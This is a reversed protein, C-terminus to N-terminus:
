KGAALKAGSASLGLQGFASELDAQAEDLKIEPTQTTGISGMGVITGSENLSSLYTIEAQAAEKIQAEFAAADLAGDVIPAKAVLSEALRTRTATHMEIGALTASALARAESLVMKEQIRALQANLQANSERLAQAEVENVHIEKTAAESVPAAVLQRGQTGRAAEFLQLVKGGAGPTTVFDVSKGAAIQTVIVGSKGDAEGAEARGLARISTGIHPALSEVAERFAPFVTADAYLGPGNTADDQWTADSTLEAALDRLSREPRDAEETVTPHDWYMKTGKGFAKPGDRKLVSESYYGSSGWGPAILKIRAQGNQSVAGERLSVVDGALETASEAIDSSEDSLGPTTPLLASEESGIMSGCYPCDALVTAEDVPIYITESRVLEADGLTVSGDDALTYTRRYLKREDSWGVAYVVSTAFVDLIYAYGGGLQARVAKELAQGIDSFSLGDQGAEELRAERVSQKVTKGKAKAKDKDKATDVSPAATEDAQATKDKAQGGKSLLKQLLNHVQRLLGENEASLMRGAENLDSM